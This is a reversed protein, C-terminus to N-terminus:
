VKVTIGGMIGVSSVQSRLQQPIIYKSLTDMTPPFRFHSDKIKFYLVPVRYSSDHIIDYEISHNLASASRSAENDDEEIEVEEPQENTDIMSYDKVPLSRAARLFRCGYSSEVEMSIQGKRDDNLKRFRNSLDKCGQEFETESIYPFASLKAM